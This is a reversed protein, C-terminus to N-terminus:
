RCGMVATSRLTTPDTVGPVLGLFFYDFTASTTVSVQAPTPTATCGTGPVIVPAQLDAPPIGLSAANARAVPDARVVAARAGERAANTLVVQTFYARGFDVIGGVLLVLIPLVIAMEVAVAGRERRGSNRPMVRSKGASGVTCLLASTPTESCVAVRQPTVPGM